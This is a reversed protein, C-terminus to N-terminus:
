LLNKALYWPLLIYLTVDRILYYAFFVAFFRWGYRRIVGKIGSERFIQKAERLVRPTWRDLIKTKPPTQEM